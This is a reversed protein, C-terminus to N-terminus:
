GAGNSPESSPVFSALPIRATDIIDGDKATSMESRVGTKTYQTSESILKGRPKTRKGGKRFVRGSGQFKDFETAACTYRSTDPVLYALKNEFAVRTPPPSGCGRVVHQRHRRGIFLGSFPFMAATTTYPQSQVLSFTMYGRRWSIRSRQSGASLGGSKPDWGRLARRQPPTEDGRWACSHRCHRAVSACGSEGDPVGAM